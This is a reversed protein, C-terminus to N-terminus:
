SKVKRKAQNLKHQLERETWPPVCRTNYETLIAYAEADTLAFDRLLRIALIFTTTHGNQGSIAPPYAWMYRRAREFAFPDRPATVTRAPEERIPFWEPVYALEQETVEWPPAVWRYGPTPYVAVYRNGRILDLGDGMKGPREPPPSLERFWVHAGGSRTSAVWVSAPLNDPLVGGNRPDVDLVLFRQGVVLGIGTARSPWATSGNWPNTSTWPLYPAKGDLPLVTFGANRYWRAAAALRSM